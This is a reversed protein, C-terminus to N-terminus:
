MGSAQMVQELIRFPLYQKHELEVVTGGRSDECAASLISM